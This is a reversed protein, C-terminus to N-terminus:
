AWTPPTAAASYLVKGSPKRMASYSADDHGLLLSELEAEEYCLLLMVTAPYFGKRSLKRMATYSADSCCLLLSESEVGDRGLRLRRQPRTYSMGVRRMASYSADSRDLLLSESEAEKHGTPPMAVVSYCIKRSPKRMASYSTDGRGLLLSESKAEEHCLLFCRWPQASPM